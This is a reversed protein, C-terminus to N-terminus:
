QKGYCVINHYFNSELNGNTAALIFSSTTQSQVSVNEASYDISYAYVMITYDSNIFPTSLNVTYNNASNRVVSSIGFSETNLTPNGSTVCRYNGIVKPIAVNNKVQAPTVLTTTSTGTEMTSKSAALDTIPSRLTLNKSGDTGLYTGVAGDSTPHVFTNITTPGNLNIVGSGKPTIKIGINSDTGAAGFIVPNGTISTTTTPYNVESTVGIFSALTGTNSYDSITHTGPATIGATAKIQDSAVILGAGKADFTLNINTDSGAAALTPGSGTAANAVNLYNVASATATFGFEKNSNEDVIYKSNLNLNGGLTPTPDQVLTGGVSGWYTQGSGNALLAQTSAGDASPLKYAGCIQVHGTGNPTLNINGNATTIIAFGTIDINSGGTSAALLVIPSVDDITSGIQNGDADKIILRYTTDTDMWINACGASDLVIPNSLSTGAESDTYTTKPTSSRTIYTYILGGALPAGDADVFQRFPCLNAM